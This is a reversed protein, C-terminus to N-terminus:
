FAAKVAQNYIEPLKENFPPLITKILENELRKICDNDETPMPLYRLYLYSGWHRKMQCIKPRETEKAYERVRKRLNKYTTKQARGIYALYLHVDPIVNPKIYFIYIGGCDNPVNNIEPNISEGIFYKIERWPRNVLEKLDDPFRGWEDEPNLVFSVKRLAVADILDVREM